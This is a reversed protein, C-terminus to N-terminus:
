PAKNTSTKNCTIYKFCKIYFCDWYLIFYYNILVKRGFFAKKRLKLLPLPLIKAESFIQSGNLIYINYENSLNYQLSENPVM